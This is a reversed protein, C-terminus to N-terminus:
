YCVTQDLMPYSVNLPLTRISSFLPFITWQVCGFVCCLTWYFTYRHATLYSRESTIYTLGYASRFLFKSNMFKVLKLYKRRNLQYYVLTIVGMSEIISMTIGNTIRDITVDNQMIEMVYLVALHVHILAIILFYVINIAFSLFAFSEPLHRAFDIHCMGCTQMLFTPVRMMDFVHFNSNWRVPDKILWAIRNFM